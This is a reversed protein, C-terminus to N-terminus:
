RMRRHPHARRAVEKLDGLSVHTNLTVTKLVGGSKAARAVVQAVTRVALPRGSHLSVFFAKEEDGGTPWLRM